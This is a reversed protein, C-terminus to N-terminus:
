TGVCAGGRVMLVMSEQEERFRVSCCCCCCGAPCCVKCPMPLQPPGLRSPPMSISSTLLGVQSPTLVSPLPPPCCQPCLFPKSEADLVSAAAATAASVSAFSPPDLASLLAAAAAAAAAATTCPILCCCPLPASWPKSCTSKSSPRPTVFSPATGSFAGRAADPAPGPTFASPTSSMSSSGTTHYLFGWIRRVTPAYLMVASSYQAMSSSSGM